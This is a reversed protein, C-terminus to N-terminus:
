LAPTPRPGRAQKVGEPEFGVSTQKSSVNYILVHGAERNLPLWFGGLLGLFLASFITILESVVRLRWRIRAHM